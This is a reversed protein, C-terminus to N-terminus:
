RPKWHRPPRACHEVTVLTGDEAVIVAINKFRDLCINFKRRVRRVVRQGLFYAQCGSGAWFCQGYKLALEISRGSIARTAARWEAHKSLKHQPM